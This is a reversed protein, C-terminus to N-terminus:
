AASRSTLSEGVTKEAESLKKVTKTLYVVIMFATMLGWTIPVNVCVGTFGFAPIMWAAALFKLALEIGSSIM